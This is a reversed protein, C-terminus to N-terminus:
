RFDITIQSLCQNELGNLKHESRHLIVPGKQENFFYFYLDDYSSYVKRFKGYKNTLDNLGFSLKGHFSISKLYSDEASLVITDFIPNKPQVAITGTENRFRVCGLANVLQVIDTDKSTIERIVRDLISLDFDKIEDFM